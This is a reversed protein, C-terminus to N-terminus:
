FAVAFCRFRGRRVQAESMAATQPPPCPTLVHEISMPPPGQPNRSTAPLPPGEPEMSDLYSLKLM